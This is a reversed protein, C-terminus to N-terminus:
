AGQERTRVGGRRRALGGTGSRCSRPSLPGRAYGGSRRSRRCRGRDTPAAAAVACDGAPARRRRCGVGPGATARPRLWGLIRDGLQRRRPPPETPSEAPAGTMRRAAAEVAAVVEDDATPLHDHEALSRRLCHRAEDVRQRLTAESVDLIAAVEVFTLGRARTLLLAERLDEPLHCISAEIADATSSSQDFPIGSDREVM